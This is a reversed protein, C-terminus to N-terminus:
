REAFLALIRADIADTKALEGTARAFDRVQRPNVVAVANGAAALAAAVTNEYGGSAELVILAPRPECIQRVLQDIGVSENPVTGEVSGDSFDLKDKAVDVGVFRPSSM